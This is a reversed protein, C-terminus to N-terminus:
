LSHHTHVLLFAQAEGIDDAEVEILVVWNDGLVLVAVGVKHLLIQKLMTIGSCTSGEPFVIITNGWANLDAM